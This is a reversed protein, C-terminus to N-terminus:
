AAGRDRGASTPAWQAVDPDAPNRGRERPGEAVHGLGARLIEPATGAYMIVGDGLRGAARLMKPGSGAVYIPVPRPQELWAIRGEVGTDFRVTGKTVLSRMGQVM